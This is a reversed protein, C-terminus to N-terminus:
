SEIVKVSDFRTVERKGRALDERDDADLWRPPPLRQGELRLM